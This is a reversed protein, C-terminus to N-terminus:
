HNIIIIIFIILSDTSITIIITIIHVICINKSLNQKKESGTVNTNCPCQLRGKVWREAPTSALLSDMRFAMRRPLSFNIRPTEASPASQTAIVM